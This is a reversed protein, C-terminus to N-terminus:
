CQTFVLFKQILKIVFYMLVANTKLLCTIKIICLICILFATDIIFHKEARVLWTYLLSWLQSYIEKNQKIKYSATVYNHPTTWHNVTRTESQHYPEPTTYVGLAGYVGTTLLCWVPQCNCLPTPSINEHNQNINGLCMILYFSNQM